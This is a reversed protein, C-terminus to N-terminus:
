YDILKIKTFNWKSVGLFELAIEGVNMRQTVGVRCVAFTFSSLDIRISRM